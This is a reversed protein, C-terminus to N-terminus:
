SKVLVEAIQIANLAAGKRLQDGAVFLALANEHSLDKRIRGVLVGDKGSAEIPMPFYNKKPDDVVCVGPAESLIKRAEEPSPKQDFEVVIAQSHARFVPVRICTIGIKIKDDHLIKMSEQIVKLEEENYGNDSVPSNHSFLNFAIQYPFAEKQVPKGELFDKTQTELERMAKAGAGSASQYTACIVRRIKRKKYLPAIAMLMIIASCNPNAIMGKHKAIDGANIEPIVLPVEPDMRFASTNDIVVAGAQVAQPAFQKSVSSGASSLVIDVGEFASKQFTLEEIKIKQSEFKVEKGKSRSSALLRLKAVPFKREELIKVMEQGVAGTVGVIAVNYKTKKKM